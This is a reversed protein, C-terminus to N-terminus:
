TPHKWGNCHALEHRAVGPDDTRIIFCRGAVRHACGRIFGRQPKSGVARCHRDVEHDDVLVTELRDTWRVFQSPPEIKKADAFHSRGTPIHFDPARLHSWPPAGVSAISPIITMSIAVTESLSRLWGQPYVWSAAPSGPVWSWRELRPWVWSPRSPVDVNLKSRVSGSQSPPRLAALREATLVPWPKVGITTVSHDVHVQPAEGAPPTSPPNTVPLTRSVSSVPLSQKPKGAEAELVAFARDGPTAKEVAINAHKGTTYAIPIDIWPREKILRVNRQREDELSSLGILFFNTAVKVSVGNLAEGRATEGAKMMIGLVNAIAGNPLAPPLTFALEVTHSAAFSADENLGWDLRVTMGADPIEIDARVAFTPQQEPSALNDAHWVVSGVFQNGVSDSLLVKPPRGATQGDAHCLSTTVLVMAAVLVAAFKISPGV